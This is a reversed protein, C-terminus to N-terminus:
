ENQLFIHDTYEIDTLFLGQPPASQRAACRNQADIIHQFDTISLKGMGIELLTGVIARVMNRLFRDAQIQFYWENDSTRIFRAETIHCITTKVDTHVKCFSAFDNNRLLIQAADNMKDFDINQPIRTAFRYNFPSKETTFFYQYQRKTADFRAHADDKVLKIDQIAIDNPLLSNLRAVFNKKIPKESDFHAVMLKAHVGADTRGAGVIETQNRLVLTLYQELIEQVSIGNPQRQWGHYDTGDYSLYIFYRM